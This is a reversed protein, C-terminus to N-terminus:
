KGFAGEGLEEFFEVDQLTFHPIRLLSNKEMSKSPIGVLEISSNLTM